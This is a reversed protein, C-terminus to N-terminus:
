TTSEAFGFYIPGSETGSLLTMPPAAFMTPEFTPPGISAQRWMGEGDLRYVVQAWLPGPQTEIKGEVAEVKVVDGLLVTTATIGLARLFGRRSITAPRTM